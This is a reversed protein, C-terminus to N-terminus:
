GPTSKSCLKRMFKARGMYCSFILHSSDWWNEENVRVCACEPRVGENVGESVCLSGWFEPM